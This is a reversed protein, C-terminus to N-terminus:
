KLTERESAPPANVVPSSPARGAGTAHKHDGSRWTPTTPPKVGVWRGTALVFDDVAEQASKQLQLGAVAVTRVATM